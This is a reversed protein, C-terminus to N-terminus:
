NIKEIEFVTITIEGPKILSRSVTGLIRVRDGIKIEDLPSFLAIATVSSGGESVLYRPRSLWLLSRREISGEIIIVEGVDSLSLDRIKKKIAKGRYEEALKQFASRNMKGMVLPILYLIIVMFLGLFLLTLDQTVIFVWLVLAAWFAVVIIALKSVKAM